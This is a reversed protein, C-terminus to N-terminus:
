KKISEESVNNDEQQPRSLNQGRCIDWEAMTKYGRTQLGCAICEREKVHTRKHNCYGAVVKFAKPYKAVYEDIFQKRAGDPMEQFNRAEEATLRGMDIIMGQGVVWGRMMNAM